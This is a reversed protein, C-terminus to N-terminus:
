GALGTSGSPDRSVAPLPASHTKAAGPRTGLESACSGDAPNRGRSAATSRPDTTPTRTAASPRRATPTRSARDSNPASASVGAATFIAAGRTRRQGAWGKELCLKVVM